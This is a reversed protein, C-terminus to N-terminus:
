WRRFLEFGFKCGFGEFKGNKNSVFAGISFLRTTFGYGCEIYPYLQRVSLASIYIREMEIFRGVFPIWSTLLIPSEYTINTRLYYRSSNYWDSNLLEFQGSWDDNWGGDLTNERFNEFDLFYADHGKLTYLGMGVRTSLAQLRTLRKIYQMDVEWREYETNSQLFGKMGREYDVSIVPGGRGKPRYELEAKPAFTNYVRKMNVLQYAESDLATRKRFTFGLQLTLKNSFEYNTVMNIYDERFKYLDRNLNSISDIQKSTFLNAITSSNIRNGNGIEMSTYFNRRSNYVWHIPIRFNFVKDKFAYGARLRVFLESRPSFRYAGRLDFKYTFGKRESYGMYLPDLLPHIRLYGQNEDGFTAKIRNMLNNGIVDWLFNKKHSKKLSDPVPSKQEDTSIVAFLQREEDSLTDIRVRDMSLAPYQPVVLSTDLQKVDYLSKYLMQMKNGLFKFAANLRCEKFYQMNDDRNALLNLTFRVMDHEGSFEVSHVRGSSYDVIAHGNVLMTNDVRPRFTLTVTSDTWATLKYRYYKKNQRNFPSLLYNQVMTVRYIHPHLYNIVTPMVTSSGPVNNYNLLSQVVADDTNSKLVKNYSEGLYQRQGRKAIFFLGPVALLTFNRKKIDFFYRSYSYEATDVSSRHAASLSHPFDFIRNLLLSDTVVGAHAPFCYAIILSYLLIYIKKRMMLLSLLFDRGQYFM